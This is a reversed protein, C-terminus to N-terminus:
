LSSRGARGPLGLRGASSAATLAWLRDGARNGVSGVPECGVPRRRSCPTTCPQPSCRARGAPPPLPSRRATVLEAAGSPVRWALADLVPVAYGTFAGDATVV